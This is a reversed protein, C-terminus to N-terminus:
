GGANGITVVAPKTPDQAFIFQLNTADMAVDFPLYYTVTAGPPVEKDFPQGHKFTAYDNYGTVHPDDSVTYAFGNSTRLACDAPALGDTSNSTKKMTAAVVVWTGTATLKDNDVSYVLDKGPRDVGVVTVIWDKVTVPQNLGNVPAGAINVTPSVQPTDKPAATPSAVTGATPSAATAATPAAATAATPSAAPAVAPAASPPPSSACAAVAFALLGAGSALGVERLFHRRSFVSTVM